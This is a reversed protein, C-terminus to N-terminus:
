PANSIQHADHIIIEARDRYNKIEGRIEVNMGQLSELNGFKDKDAAFIVSTFPCGRYDQCFDLFTNGARSTFIRLVRGSVCGTKGVQAGADQIDTCAAKSSVAPAPATVRPALPIDAGVTVTTVQQRRSGALFGLGFTVLLLGVVGLIWSRKM